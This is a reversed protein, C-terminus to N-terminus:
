AKSWDTLPTLWKTEGHTAYGPIPSILARGKKRLELFMEFDKPHSGDTYKRLIEEDAKLTQVRAAFTMTTSNTLKWHVSETLIVRTLEGGGNIYPNGGKDRNIYKDPADYLTVYHAESRIGEVLIKRSGKKHLYDDELFYVITDKDLELAQDLARNFSQAGNGFYTREVNPYAACLRDFTKDKVNDAIIYLDDVGFYKVYNSLCNSNNIYEPKLKNYGSDSLRYFTTINQDTGNKSELYTSKLNSEFSPLYEISRKACFKKLFIKFPFFINKM